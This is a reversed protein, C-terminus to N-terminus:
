PSATAAPSANTPPPHGRIPASRFQVVVILLIVLGVVLLMGIGGLLWVFDRSRDPAATDEVRDPQPGEGPPNPGGDVHMSTLRAGARM